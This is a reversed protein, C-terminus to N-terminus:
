DQVIFHEVLKHSRQSCQLCSPRDKERSTGRGECPLCIVTKEEETENDAHAGEETIEEDTEIIAAAGAVQGAGSM